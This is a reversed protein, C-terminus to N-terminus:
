KVRGRWYICGAMKPAIIVGNWDEFAARAVVSECYGVTRLDCAGCTACTRSAKALLAACLKKEDQEEAQMQKGAALNAKMEQDRAKKADEASTIKVGADRVRERHAM